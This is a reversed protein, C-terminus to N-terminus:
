RWLIRHLFYQLLGAKKSEFWLYTYMSPVLDEKVRFEPLFFSHLVDSSIMRLKVKKGLPVYLDQATTRGDPYKFSWSWRQGTVDVVFAESDEPMTRM